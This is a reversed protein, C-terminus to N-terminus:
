REKRMRVWSGLPSDDDIEGLQVSQRNQLDLAYLMTQLGVQGLTRGYLLYQSDPSWVLPGWVDTEPSRDFLSFISWLVAIGKPPQYNKLLMEQDSGDPCIRYYNRDAGIYAIWEGSPSWTPFGKAHGQAILTRSQNTDFNYILIDNDIGQYVIERNDPSWAYSTIGGVGSEILTRQTKTALDLVFLAGQLPHVQTNPLFRDPMQQYNTVFALQTGDSSWAIKGVWPAELLKEKFSGQGDLLVLQSRQTEAEETTQVWVAIHQGNPAFTANAVRDYTTGIGFIPVAQRDQVSYLYVNSYLGTKIADPRVIREVIKVGKLNGPSSGEPALSPPKYGKPRKPFELYGHQASDCLLIRWGEQQELAVLRKHLAQPSAM